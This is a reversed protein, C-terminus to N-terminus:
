VRHSIDIAFKFRPDRSRPLEPPMKALEEKKKAEYARKKEVDLPSGFEPAFYVAAFERASSRWLAAARAASEAAAEEIERFLYERMNMACGRTLDIEPDRLKEARVGGNFSTSRADGYVRQTGNEIPLTPGSLCSAIDARLLAVERSLTEYGDELVQILRYAERMILGCADDDSAPAPAPMMYEAANHAFESWLQMDAIYERVDYLCSYLDEMYKEDAIRQVEFYKHWDFSQRNSTFSWFRPISRERALDRMLTQYMKYGMECRLYLASPPTDTAVIAPKKAHERRMEPGTCARKPTFHARALQTLSAHRVNVVGSLLLATGIAYLVALFVLVLDITTQM